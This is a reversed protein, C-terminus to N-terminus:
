ENSMIEQAGEADLRSLTAQMLALTHEVDQPHLMAAPAHIYRCPVAVAVAPVGERALHIAG